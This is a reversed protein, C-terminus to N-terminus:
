RVLTEFLFVTVASFLVLATFGGFTYILYDMFLDNFKDYKINEKVPRIKKKVWYYGFYYYIIGIINGIGELNRGAFYNNLVDLMRWVLLAGTFFLFGWVVIVGFYATFFKKGKFIPKGANYLDSIIYVLLILISAYKFLVAM